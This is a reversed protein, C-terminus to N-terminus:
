PVSVPLRLLGGDVEVTVIWEGAMNSTLDARFATPGQRAAPAATTMAHGVMAASVQPWPPPLMNNSETSVFDVLVTMRGAAGAAASAVMQWDGITLTAQRFSSSTDSSLMRIFPAAVLGAIIVVLIALPLWRVYPLVHTGARPAKSRTM